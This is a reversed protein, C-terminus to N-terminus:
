EMAFLSVQKWGDKEKQFVMIQRTKQSVEKGSSLDKSTSEMNMFVNATMKDEDYQIITTNEPTMTADFTQFVKEIYAKEEEYDFSEPTKSITAMYADIDKENFSQIQQNLAALIAEREEKPVNETEEIPAKVSTGGAKEEEATHTEQTSSQTEGDSTSNAAEDSKEEGCAGLLAGMLLLAPVWKYTM